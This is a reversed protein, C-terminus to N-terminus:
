VDGDVEVFDELLILEQASITISDPLKIKGVALEVDLMALENISKVFSDRETIEYYSGDSSIKGYKECLKIREAEYTELESDVARVTKAVAYSVKVPLNQASLMKISDKAKLIKDFNTKIM